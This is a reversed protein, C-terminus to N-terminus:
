LYKKEYDLKKQTNCSGLCDCVPYVELDCIMTKKVRFTWGTLRLFDGQVHCWEFGKFRARWVHATSIYRSDNYRSSTLTEIWISWSCRPDRKASRDLFVKISYTRLFGLWPGTKYTFIGYMSCRPETLYQSLGESQGTTRQHKWHQIFLWMNPPYNSADKPSSKGVLGSMLFFWNISTEM